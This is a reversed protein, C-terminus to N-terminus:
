NASVRIVPRLAREPTFAPSGNFSLYGASGVEAVNEPNGGSSRLWWWCRNSDPLELWLGKSIAYPTAPAYLQSYFTEQADVIDYMSMVEELSLLWVKDVTDAGGDTNHVPNPSNTVTTSLISAREQEDFAAEFFEGNLFTRVHSTEWTVEGPELSYPAADLCYLSVLTLEDNNRETVLWFIEESGNTLDNDQEYSGFSVIQGAQANEADSLEYKDEQVSYGDEAARDGSGVDCACLMLAFALIMAICYVLRKAIM